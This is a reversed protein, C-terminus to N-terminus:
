GNKEEKLLRMELAELAPLYDAEIREIIKEFADIDYTHSMRNRADLAEMWPEGDKIIKAAFAARIVTHPTVTELVIGQNELYDRLTKWALEWTYEFRQIVGEEELRSLARENGTEVAERLLAVARKFNDFRYVWRPPEQPM